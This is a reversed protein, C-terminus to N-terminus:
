SSTRVATPSVRESTESSTVPAGTTRAYPRWPRVRPRSSSAMRVWYLAWILAAFHNATM